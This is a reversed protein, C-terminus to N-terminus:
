SLKVATNTGLIDLIKILYDTSVRELHRNMIATVRTRPIIVMGAVEQHTLKNEKILYIIKENLQKRIPDLNEKPELGRNIARRVGAEHNIQKMRAIRKKELEVIQNEIEDLSKDAVRDITNFIPKWYVGMDSVIECDIGFRKASFAEIYAGMAFGWSRNGERGSSNRIDVLTSM